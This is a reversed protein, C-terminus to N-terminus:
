KDFAEEISDQDHKKKGAPGSAAHHGRPPRELRVSLKADADPRVEESSSKYGQARFTLRIPQDGRVLRIAGPATGLLDGKPGVVETGPPPGDVTLTVMEPEAKPPPAVPAPDAKPLAPAAPPKVSSRNVLTLAGFAGIAILAVPALM